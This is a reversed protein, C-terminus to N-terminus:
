VLRAAAEVRTAIGDFHRTLAEALPGPEGREVAALIDVHWGAIVAPTAEGEPLRDDIRRFVTWFVELLELVLGNDLPAYLLRHFTWDSDADYEGREAAARIATVATRLGALDLRDRAALVEGALGSELARRVQALERIAALDGNLSLAARFQLGERLSTLAGAGVFTGTGHRIDVIGLAELVKMAERLPHRSVGFRATLEAETPLPSGATLGSEVIYDRIARQLAQQNGRAGTM